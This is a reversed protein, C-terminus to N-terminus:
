SAVEDTQKSAIWEVITSRSWRPSAGVRIPEPLDGATVLKDVQRDSCRLDDALESKTMLLPPTKIAAAIPTSVSTM